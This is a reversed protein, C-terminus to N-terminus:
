RLVKLLVGDLLAVADDRDGYSAVNRVRIREDDCGILGLALLADLAIECGSWDFDNGEVWGGADALLILALLVRCRDRM